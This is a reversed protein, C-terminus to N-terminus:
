DNRAPGEIPVASRTSLRDLAAPLDALTDLVLDAGLDHAAESTYGGRVVISRVGAAKAAAVDASSDGVVVTARIDAVLLRMATRIMSPDPKLAVGDRAGVIAGFASALGVRDLIALALPEPKNTVVGLRVGRGALTGVAEFAGPCVTTREAPEAHYADLFSRLVVDIESGAADTGLARAVLERAGAGIWGRTAEVGAPRRGVAVLAVDLAAAIDAVSDILTGDLDFLVAEIM